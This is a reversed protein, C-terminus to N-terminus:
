IKKPPKVLIQNSSQVSYIPDGHSDKLTSRSISTINTHIKIKTGDDLVYENSDQAMSDYRMDDLDINKRIEENSIPKLNAAGRLDAFAYIVTLVQADIFYETQNKQIKRRINKLITRTKLVSNDQLQYKNWPEKIIEFEISRVEDM